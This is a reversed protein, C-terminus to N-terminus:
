NKRKLEFGFINLIDNQAILSQGAYRGLGAIEARQDDLIEMVMELNQNSNNQKLKFILLDNEEVLKFDGFFQIEGDLTNIMEYDGLRSQWSKSIKQSSIKTALLKKGSQEDLATIVNEGDIEEFFFRLEGMKIPIFGLLNLKPIFGNESVPILTLKAGQMEMKLKNGKLYTNIYAGPSAYDGEFLQAKQVSLKIKKKSCLQAIEPQEGYALELEIALANLINDAEKYVKAGKESNTLIVVGLGAEVALSMAANFYLTTGTHSLIKGIQPHENITWGLGFKSDFDLPLDSNQVRSIENFSEQSFLAESQSLYAMMFKALDSTSSYLGGAPIDRLLVDERAVGEKDYTKTAKDLMNFGSSNMGLPYLINDLIYQDYEKDTMEYIMHGLLTYAPNSYARIHNPKCTMYEKNIYNVVEKYDEPNHTFMGKFVDSPLGSHHTLINRVNVENTFDGNIDFSKLYNSFPLDLDVVGQDVLQMTATSTFVKTVSGLGFITKSTIPQNLESNAFGFNDEWIISDKSVVMVSAGVINYESMTREIRESFVMKLSDLNPEASAANGLLIFLFLLKLKNM